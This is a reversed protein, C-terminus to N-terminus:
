IKDRTKTHLSTSNSRRKANTTSILPYPNTHFKAIKAPSGNPCNEASFECVQSPLKENLLTETSINLNEIQDVRFVQGLGKM